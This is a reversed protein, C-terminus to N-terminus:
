RKPGIGLLARFAAEEVETMVYRLDDDREVTGEANGAVGMTTGRALKEHASRVSATLTRAEGCQNTNPM